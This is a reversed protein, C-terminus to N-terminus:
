PAERPALHPMAYAIVTIAAGCCGHDDGFREEIIECELFDFDPDFFRSQAV